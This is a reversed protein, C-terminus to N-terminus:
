ERGVVMTRHTSHSIAIAAQSRASTEAGGYGEVKKEPDRQQEPHAQRGQVNEEHQRHLM